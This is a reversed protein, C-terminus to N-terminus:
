RDPRGQGSPFQFVDSGMHHCTEKESMFYRTGDPGVITFSNIGGTANNRTYTIKVGDGSLQVLTGDDKILFSGSLGCVHYDYRDLSSELYGRVVPDLYEHYLTDEPMSLLIDEPLRHRYCPTKWEDPIGVVTRTICGGANLRWGLGAVGAIEDLKIGGTAYSLTIPLSLEKGKLTYCPVEFSITGMNYDVPIGAYKVVSSADPAPPFLTELSTSGRKYVENSGAGSVATDNQGNAVLSSVMMLAAFISKLKTRM